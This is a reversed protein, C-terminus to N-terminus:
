AVFRKRDDITWSVSDRLLECDDVTLYRAGEIAALAEAFRREASGGIDVEQKFPSVRAPVLVVLEYGLRRHAENALFIHGKHIPNFSGGLIALKM